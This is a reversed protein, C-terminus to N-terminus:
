RKLCKYRNRSSLEFQMTLEHICISSLAPLAGLHCCDLRILRLPTPTGYCDHALRHHQPLVRTAAPPRVGAIHEALPQLDARQLGHGAEKAVPAAVRAAVIDTAMRDTRDHCCPKERERFGAAVIERGRDGLKAKRAQLGTIAPAQARRAPLLCELGALRRAHHQPGGVLTRKSMAREGVELTERQIDVSCPQALSGISVHTREPGMPANGEANDLLALGEVIRGRGRAARLEFRTEADFDALLITPMEEILKSM